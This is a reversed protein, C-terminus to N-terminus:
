NQEINNHQCREMVPSESFITIPEGGARLNWTKDKERSLSELSLKGLPQRLGRCETIHPDSPTSLDVYRLCM